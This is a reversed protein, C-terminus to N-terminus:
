AVQAELRQAFHNLFLQREEDGRLADDSMM